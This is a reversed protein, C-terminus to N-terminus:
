APKQAFRLTFYAHVRKMTERIDAGLHAAAQQRDRDKYGLRRALSKFEDSREDPLVLDTADGRVIRLGDILNRLFLYGSHLTAYDDERIIQLKRLGLLANLTNTLRIEPHLAGNLLQLYQVAYEVDIIGGASYKVNIQGPKVLENMQRHRLEMADAWNWPTGSYTFADRQQEV